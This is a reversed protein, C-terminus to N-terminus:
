AGTTSKFQHENIMCILDASAGIANDPRPDLGLIRLQFTATAVTSEDLEMYSIGTSTSGAPTPVTIDANAGMDTVAVTGSSQIAFTAYPDDCVYVTRLTSATRYIQNLYSPNPKFGVVFGVLTETAAAQTVVPHNEGDDGNGSTGTLKVFDGVFLATADTALVTYANIRANQTVGLISGVLRAGFPADVNAM